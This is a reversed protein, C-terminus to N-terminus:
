QPVRYGYGLRGFMQITEDKAAFSQHIELYLDKVEDYEHLAQSIPHSSVGLQTTTLKLQLRNMM